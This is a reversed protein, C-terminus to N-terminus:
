ITMVGRPCRPDLIKITHTMQLIVAVGGSPVRRSKIQSPNTTKTQRSNVSQMSSQLYPLGNHFHIFSEAIFARQMIEAHYRCVVM